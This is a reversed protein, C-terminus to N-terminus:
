GKAAHVVNAKPRRSKMSMMDDDNVNDSNVGEDDHDPTPEQKPARDDDSENGDAALNIICVATSSQM